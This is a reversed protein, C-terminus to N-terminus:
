LLSCKPSIVYLSFFFLGLVLTYRHKILKIAAKDLTM